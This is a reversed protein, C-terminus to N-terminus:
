PSRVCRRPSAAHASRPRDCRRGAARRWVCLLIALQVGGGRVVPRARRCGEAAARPPRDAAPLRAADRAALLHRDARLPGRVSSRLGGSRLRLHGGAVLAPARGLGLHLALAFTCVGAAVFDFFLMLNQAVTLSVFAQLVIGILGHLPALTHFWLDAGFPHLIYTGEFPNQGLELLAYRFWWLNWLNILSEPLIKLSRWWEGGPVRDRFHLLLPWTAVSTLFTYLSPPRAWIASGSRSARGLVRRPCTASPNTGV